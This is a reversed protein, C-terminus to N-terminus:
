DGYYGNPRSSIAIPRPGRFMRLIQDVETNGTLPNAVVGAAAASATVDAYRIRNGDVWKEVVPGKTSSGGGGGGGGGGGTTEGHKTNLATAGTIALIIAAKKILPPAGGTVPDIYGFTGVVKQNMNGRLFTRHTNFGEGGFVTTAGYNGRKLVIKPNKRDDYLGTRNYVSYATASLPTTFDDNIYLAEVEIIPVPLFLTSSGTGDLTIELDREEFWMKTVDEIIQEARPIVENEIRDEDEPAIEMGEAELDEITIIAM